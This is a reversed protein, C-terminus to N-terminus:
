PCPAQSANAHFASGMSRLAILGHIVWSSGKKAEDDTVRPGRCQPCVVIVDALDFRHRYDSHRPRGTVRRGNSSHAPDGRRSYEHLLQARRTKTSRLPTSGRVEATCLRREGLQALPGRPRGTYGAPGSPQDLVVVDDAVGTEGGGEM